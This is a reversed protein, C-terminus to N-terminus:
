GRASRGAFAGTVAGALVGWVIGTIIWAWALGYTFGNFLLYCIIWTPFNVLVGAYLGFVAGGAAGPAFSPRVRQYVWVFVAAAVFDSVVLLPLSADTRMLPLKSYLPGQLAIGHILYDYVNVVLGVVITTVLFKSVPM